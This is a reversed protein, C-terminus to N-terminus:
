NPNSIKSFLMKIRERLIHNEKLDPDTKLVEFCLNQAKKLILTDTFLNACKLEPLGHQRTGFFEGCGRLELDKRSIEFGDNTKTMIDMREKTNENDSDTILICYSKYAGRGVRGRLQHLQSLGFREANEIVIINANPNDIGVEIVTTSVLLDIERNKFRAMIEDKESNKMKGHLFATKKDSFIGKSLTEYMKLASSLDLTENDEVLPCVVYAQRGSDIQKKVFNYARKKYGSNVCFTDIKERGKPLADIVSIDLDGYLILALTRPIPTASMVLVNTNGKGSLNLRQNVGFRHQEDTISLALNKFEVNDEILAHTGIVVPYKGDKIDQLLKKKGKTAGTLLAIEVKDGFLKSLTEYHQVALIQTPAMLVSQFGNRYATYMAAAAVVTKGSGVDGQVLRNMSKESELDCLIENIARKQADTLTFPLTKIFDSVCKTDKFPKTKKRATGSKMTLLASQLVFLEEFAFRYRANKIDDEDEPFHINHIADKINLLSYERRTEDSFIDRLADSKQIAQNELGWITKQTIGKTLHYVPVIRQTENFSGSKECAILEMERRTGADAVKGYFVYKEGSKMNAGYVPSSFWKVVMTGTEDKINLLYLAINKKIQKKSANRLVVGEVCCKIGTPADCIKFKQRRDEYGKPFFYLVDWINYLSLKHLLAAKKEGVGKLNKIDSNLVDIYDM